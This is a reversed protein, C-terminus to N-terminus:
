NTGMDVTPCTDENRSNFLADAARSVNFGGDQWVPHRNSERLSERLATELVLTARLKRDCNNENAILESSVLALYNSFTKWPTSKLSSVPM